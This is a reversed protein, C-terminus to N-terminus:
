LNGNSVNAVINKGNHNNATILKDINKWFVDIPSLTPEIDPIIIAKTARIGVMLSFMGGLGRITNISNRTYIFEKVLRKTNISLTLTLFKPSPYSNKQYSLPNNKTDTIIVTKDNIM